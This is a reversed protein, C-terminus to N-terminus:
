AGAASVSNTSYILAPCDIRKSSWDKRAKKYFSGADAYQASTQNSFENQCAKQPTTDSIHLWPMRAFKPLIEVWCATTSAM